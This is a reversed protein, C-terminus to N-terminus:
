THDDTSNYLTNRWFRCYLRTSDTRLRVEQLEDQLVALRRTLRQNNFQLMDTEEMHTRIKDEKAKIMSELSKTKDQEQTFNLM